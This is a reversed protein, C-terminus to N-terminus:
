GAEAAHTADLPGSSWRRAAGLGLNERLTGHDYDARFVGREQLLPVVRDVFPDLGGPTLHPVLIFGDAADTQVSTNIQDAVEDPSGVFSHRGMTEIVVERTSLNKAVAIARWREAIALPDSHQRARGQVITSPEVQPDIDPLPGDPDHDSLDRNWVQELLSIATQPTVQQFRIERALEAADANTDAVVVTAGPLVKLDDPERGYRALRGKVDAFFRRGAEPTAHITFVGDATAAALERGGDSNGAQLIV